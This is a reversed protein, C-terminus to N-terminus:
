NRRQTKLLTLITNLIGVSIRVRGKDNEVERLKRVCRGVEGIKRVWM